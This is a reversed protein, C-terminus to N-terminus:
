FTKSLSIVAGSKSVDKGASTFHDTKELTTLGSMGVYDLGLSFDNPLSLSVGVKYDSFGNLGSTGEVKQKGYHATLAIQESVPVELSVAHYTSGSSAAKGFWNGTTRSFKYSFIEYSVGVYWENTNVTPTTPYGPYQYRLFGVDGTIGMPLEASYGGYVDIEMGNGGSNAFDSVNSGWTGIYLGNTHSLDFGGQLAMKKDTQSAGRFRYDSFLGFNGSIEIDPAPAKPDAALASTAAGGSTLAALTVALLTKKM